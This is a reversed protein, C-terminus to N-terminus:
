FKQAVFGFYDAQVELVNVMELEQDFIMMYWKYLEVHPDSDPRKLPTAVYYNLM